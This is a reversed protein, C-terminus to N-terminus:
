FSKSNRSRKRARFVTPGSFLIYLPPELAPGMQRDWFQSRWTSGCGSTKESRERERGGEQGFYLRAGQLPVQSSQFCSIFLLYSIIHLLRTTSGQFVPPLLVFCALLVHCSQFGTFLLVFLIVGFLVFCVLVLILVLICVFWCGVCSGVVLGSGGM